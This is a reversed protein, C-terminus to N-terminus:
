PAENEGSSLSSFSCSPSAVRKEKEKIPNWTIDKIAFKNATEPITIAFGLTPAVVCNAAWMPEDDKPNYNELIDPQIFEVLSSDFCLILKVGSENTSEKGWSKKILEETFDSGKRLMFVFGKSFSPETHFFDEFIAM